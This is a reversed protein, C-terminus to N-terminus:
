KGGQSSSTAATTGGTSPRRALGPVLETERKAIALAILVAARQQATTGIGTVSTRINM